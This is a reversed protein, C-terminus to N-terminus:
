DCHSHVVAEVLRVVGVLLADVRLRAVFQGLTQCRRGVLRVIRGFYLM